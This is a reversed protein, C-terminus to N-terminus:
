LGVFYRTMLAETRSLLLNAAHDFERARIGFLVDIFEDRSIRGVRSQRMAECRFQSWHPVAPAQPIIGPPFLAIKIRKGNVGICSLHAAGSLLVFVSSLQQGGTFIAGGRPIEDVIMSAFIRKQQDPPLGSFSELRALLESDNPVRRETALM